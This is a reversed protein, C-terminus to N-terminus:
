LSANNLFMQQGNVMIFPLEEKGHSLNRLWYMGNDPVNKFDLFNSKAIQSGLSKWGQNYYLLQYTDGIVISNNANRPSIHFELLQYKSGLDIDINMSNAFTLPDDDWLPSADFYRSMIRCPLKIVSDSRLTNIKKGSVGYIKLTALNLRTGVKPKIRIYQFKNHNAVPIVKLSFDNLDATDLTHLTVIQHFDSDNSAQLKAGVMSKLYALLKDKKPYKRFLRIQSYSKSPVIDTMSGDANVIFPNSVPSYVGQKYTGITYVSNIPVQEFSFLNGQAKSWGIVNWQGSVFIALYMVQNSNKKQNWTITRTQHYEETVDKIFPDRFVPPVDDENKVFDSPQPFTEFTKRYVKSARKFYVSDGLEQWKPTFPHYRGTSDRVSVWFHKNKRNFWSPTFDLCTPVGCSNLVRTTWDSHRGCEFKYFQLIDYFGLNGLYKGEEEFLDLCYTYFNFRRVIAPLSKLSDPSYLIPNFLNFLDSSKLDISEFRSRYPLVVAKFEDFSLTKCLPAAKWVRFANDIHDILFASSLFKADSLPESEGNLSDNIAKLIGSAHYNVLSDFEHSIKSSSPDGHYFYKVLSDIYEKGPHIEDEDLIAHMLSVYKFADETHPSFFNSKTASDVTLYSRRIIEPISDLHIDAKHKPMNAILYCASNFKQSDGLARYHELVKTLEKRNNEAQFLAEEVEQPYIDKQKCSFFIISSFLVFAVCCTQVYKM